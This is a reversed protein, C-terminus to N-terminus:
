AAEECVPGTAFGYVAAEEDASARDVRPVWQTLAQPRSSTGVRVPM